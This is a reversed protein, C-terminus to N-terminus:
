PTDEPNDIPSGDLSGQRSTKDAGGLTKKIREAAGEVADDALRKVSGEGWDLARRGAVGSLLLIAVRVWSHISMGAPTAANFAVVLVTVIVGLAVGFIMDRWFQRRVRLVDIKDSALAVATRITAGVMVVVIGYALGEYDYDHLDRAFTQAAKASAAWALLSWWVFLRHNPSRLWTMM